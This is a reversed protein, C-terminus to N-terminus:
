HSRVFPPWSQNLGATLATNRDTLGTALDVRLIGFQGGLIGFRLGGGADLFFRNAASGDAPTRIEAGDLFLGAAVTIPGLHFLPRDGTIGGHMITRGTTNGPLLGDSTRAHARLPIALPIDASAEPWAGLPAGSNALDLGARASWTARDLGVSSAWLGRISARAYSPMPTIPQAYDVSSTVVLRDGAARFELGTTGVLYERSGSWREYRLGASPRFAPSVWAGFIAGGSRRSEEFVGQRAAGTSYRFREWGGGIGIVGNVGLRMPVEVRLVLWPHADEWRWAASWLEGGGTPSAISVGLQHQTIASLAGSALLQWWPRLVPREAVAARVEVQGGEVPQYTVAAHRLAPLEAVRRRAMALQSSTLVTGHAVDMADAIRGFRVERSGDITVLDVTPKGVQNWAELAGERDGSLFRSAALLQWGLPDDPVQALYQESLGIAEALRHQKFRVGALERLVLPEAPCAHAAEALLDAADDLRDAAVADLARDLWPRCPMSDTALPLPQNNVATAPLPSAPLLVMAWRRAGSWETLFAADDMTRFPGRAPDHYLVRGDSWALLVVYHYRGPAVEILAIVPAGQALLQRVEDPTGDFARTEWGRAQAAAALDTTTIGRLEPHVLAVFDEAYIGRRGWFREVMAVAAGGCLLESQALYPVELVPPPGGPSPPTPLQASAPAGGLAMGLGCVATISRVIRRV